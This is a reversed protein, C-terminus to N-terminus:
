LKARYVTICSDPCVMACNTCGICKEPSSMLAYHYGRSNVTPSMSIVQYPCASECVACGKCKQEEILIIGKITKM